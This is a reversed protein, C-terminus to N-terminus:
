PQFQNLDQQLSEVFRSVHFGDCVGHHVQIALPMKWHGHHEWAKGLTFIPLLYDYGKQLHLHFGTFTTWPVMSVPFTNGPTHPKPEMGPLSGYTQLDQEYRHLFRTFDPDYETWINSFTESDRHFVTYCPLMRDYIGPEGAENLATRFEEHRNVVTTLAYLMAPYLKVGQRRLATIDLKVTTSYTCPVASFYHDYYEKRAWGQLDIKHFAM